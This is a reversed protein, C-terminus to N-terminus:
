YNDNKNLNRYLSDGKMKFENYSVTENGFDRGYSSTWIAHPFALVTTSRIIEINRQLWQSSKIRCHSNMYSSKKTSNRYTEWIHWGWRVRSPTTRENESVKQLKSIATEVKSLTHRKKTNPTQFASINTGMLIQEHPTDEVVQSDADECMGLPQTESEVKKKKKEHDSDDNTNTSTAPTM